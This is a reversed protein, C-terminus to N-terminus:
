DAKADEHPHAQFPCKWAADVRRGSYQAAESRTGHDALMPNIDGQLTREGTRIIDRFRSYHGQERLAEFQRHPNFVLTPWAFRRAARSSAAHLGVVFFATRAFSFSFQPDEPDASVAPDWRHYAADLDHLQQLTAWLLREFDTEDAPHPGSFSAIYTCFPHELSGLETTFHFLDRALGRVSAASAMENYLGFRYSGHRFASKAGVCTFQENLVLARVGDHVFAALPSLAEDRDARALRGDRFASYSSHAVAVADNFPNV